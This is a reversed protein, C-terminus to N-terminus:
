FLTEPEGLRHHAQLGQTERQGSPRRDGRGREGAQWDLLLVKGCVSPRWVLQDDAGHLTWRVSCVLEGGRYPPPSPLHDLPSWFCLSSSLIFPVLSPLSPLPM